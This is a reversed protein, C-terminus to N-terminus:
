LQAEGKIVKDDQCSFWHPWLLKRNARRRIWEVGVDTSSFIGVGVAIGKELVVACLLAGGADVAAGVGDLAVRSDVDKRCNENHTLVAQKHDHFSNNMFLLRNTNM